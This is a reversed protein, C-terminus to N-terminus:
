MKQTNSRRNCDKAVGPFFAVNMHMFFTENNQTCQPTIYIEKILTVPPSVASVIGEHDTDNTLKSLLGFSPLSPYIRSHQMLFSM